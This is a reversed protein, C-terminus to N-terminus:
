DSELAALRRRLRALKRDPRREVATHERLWWALAAKEPAGKPM